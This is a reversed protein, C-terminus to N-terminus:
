LDVIKGIKDIFQTPTDKSCDLNAMAHRFNSVCYAGSLSEDMLMEALLKTKGVGWEGSICTMGSM